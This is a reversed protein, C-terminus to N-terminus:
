WELDGGITGTIDQATNPNPPQDAGPADFFPAGIPGRNLPNYDGDSRVPTMDYQGAGAPNPDSTWDPIRGMHQATWEGPQEVFAGVSGANQVTWGIRPLNSPGGIQTAWMPASAGYGMGPPVYGPATTRDFQM